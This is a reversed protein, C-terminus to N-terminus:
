RIASVTLQFQHLVSLSTWDLKQPTILSVLSVPVQTPYQLAEPHVTFFRRMHNRSLMDAAKNNVGAIHTATIDIDFLATFFWLCRLLHMVLTDKATGKNIATVLSQNDCQFEVRKKALSKGWVACSIIIPVLEKAM